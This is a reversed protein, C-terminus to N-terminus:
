LGMSRFPLLLHTALVPTNRAEAKKWSTLARHARRGWRPRPHGLPLSVGREGGGLVQHADRQAHEAEPGERAHHSLHAGRTAPCGSRARSGAGHDSLGALRAGTDGSGM